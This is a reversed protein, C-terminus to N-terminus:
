LDVIQKYVPYCREVEKLYFAFHHKLKNLDAEDSNLLCGNFKIGLYDNLHALPPDVIVKVIDHKSFTLLFTLVSQDSLAM